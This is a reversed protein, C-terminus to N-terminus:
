NTTNSEGDDNPFFVKYEFTYRDVSHFWEIRRYHKPLNADFFERDQGVVQWAIGNEDNLFANINALELELEKLYKNIKRDARDRDKKKEKYSTIFNSWDKELFREISNKTVYLWLKKLSNEM